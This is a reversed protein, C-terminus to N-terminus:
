APNSTFATSRRFMMSLPTFRVSLSGDEGYYLLLRPAILDITEPALRGANLARRSLSLSASPAYALPAGTSDSVSINSLEFSVTGADTLRASVGEIAVGLGAFERELAEQIQGALFTLPIPGYLLRVYLM